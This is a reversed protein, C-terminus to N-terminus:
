SLSGVAGVIALLAAITALGRVGYHRGHRSAWAKGNEIATHTQKPWVNFALMLVEILALLVLCFGIVVGIVVLTSYHLKARRDLAALYWVGPFSLLIAVV